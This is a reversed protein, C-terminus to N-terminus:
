TNSQPRAPYCAGASTTFVSKYRVVSCQQLTGAEFPVNNYLVIGAEFKKQHVPKRVFARSKGHSRNIRTTFHRASLYTTCTSLM